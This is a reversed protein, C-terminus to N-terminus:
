LEYMQHTYEWSTKYLPDRGCSGVVTIHQIGIQEGLIVEM